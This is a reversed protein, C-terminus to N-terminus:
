AAGKRQADIQARAQLYKPIDNLLHYGSISHNALWIVPCVLMLASVLDPAMLLTVVAGIWHSVCYRCQAGAALTRIVAHRHSAIGETRLWRLPTAFISGMQWTNVILATTLSALLLTIVM